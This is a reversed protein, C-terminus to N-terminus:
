KSALWVLSPDFTGMVTPVLGHVREAVVMNTRFQLIPVVPVVDLIRRQVDRLIVQREEADVTRRALDLKEDIIESSFGTLNDPAGTRFLPMLFADPAPYAGFWGLRFLDADGSALFEAYAGGDFSRPRLNTPIGVVNLDDAIAQAVARQTENDDFDINVLPVDGDPFAEALRVGATDVDFACKPCANAQHGIVGAPILTSLAAHNGGFVDAVIGDRDIAAAIAERFPRNKFKDQDLNFAYFFEAAYLGYADDGYRVAADSVSDRPVIAADVDGDVFAQYGVDPDNVLLVDIGDLFMDAEDAARLRLEVVGDTVEVRGALAFPGSGNPETSFPPETPADADAPVIGYAANSMLLPFTPVPETLDVRVTRADVATVGELAETDRDVVYQRYGAITELQVSAASIIGRRAVRELTAVVDAATISAGDHFSRDALKFTWTTLDDDSSWSAAVAPLVEATAPDAATLGDFLLDAMIIDHQLGSEALAPDLSDPRQLALRLIGGEVPEGAHAGTTEGDTEPGSPGVEPAPDDAVIVALVSGLVLLIGIVLAAVIPRNM